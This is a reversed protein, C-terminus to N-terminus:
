MKDTVEAIWNIRYGTRVSCRRKRPRDLSQNRSSEMVHGKSTLGPGACKSLCTAVTPLSESVIRTQKTIFNRRTKRLDAIAEEDSDTLYINTMHGKKYGSQSTEAEGGAETKQTM